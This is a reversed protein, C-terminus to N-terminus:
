LVSVECVVEYSGVAFVRNSAPVVVRAALTQQGSQAAVLGFADIEIIINEPLLARIASAEGILKVSYVMSGERPRVSLDAPINAVRINSVNFTKEEMIQATTFTVTVQPVNEFNKLEKRLQVTFTYTKTDLTFNSLDIKGIEIETVSSFVETEAAVTLTPQSLRMLSLLWELDFGAPVGTFGVTLPIERVELVPVTVEVQNVSLTFYTMDMVNGNHDLLTVAVGSYRMTRNRVEENTVIAVASDLEQMKASPGTVDVVQPAAVPTDRFFGDAATVGSARVELTLTRTEVTDFRVTVTAPEIKLFSYNGSIGRKEGVLSLVYEGPGTVPSYDIRVVVDSANVLSVSNDTGEIWVNATQPLESIIMLDSGLYQSRYMNPDIRVKSIRSQTNPLMYGAIVVFAVVALLLSLAMMAYNNDIIRKNNKKEM